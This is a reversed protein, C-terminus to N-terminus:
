SIEGRLNQTMKEKIADKDTYHSFLYYLKTVAAETTMDKGDVAGINQLSKSTAYAGLSVSGQMCQSCVTIIAGNDYAKQIIPLLSEQCSPINGAGFTELVVGKLQDTMIFAFLEFQIGPFVKLVGIPVDFFEQLQLEGVCPPRIAAENYRISIGAEALHPANPSEFAELHDSSKKTSRNGRLLKGNFYLCVEHIKDSAAILISNIINDRGDSRLRCLPIQAGTFVVPKSLNELMFSLASASYSMTDTGHLVIFGDFDRYREAIARGIKNWERVTINSSDLLPDFELLSWSPMDPDYMEPMEELMRRFFGAKPTYGNPSPVMGITGGTYILCIRKKCGCMNCGM